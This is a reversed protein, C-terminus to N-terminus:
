TARRAGKRDATARECFFAIARLCEPDFLKGPAPFFVYRRWHTFWKVEGLPDAHSDKPFVLWRETKRGPNSQQVFNIWDSDSM